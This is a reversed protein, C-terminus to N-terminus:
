LTIVRRSGLLPRCDSPSCWRVCSEDDRWRGGPVDGDACRSGSCLTWTNKDPHEGHKLFYMASFLAYETDTMTKINMSTIDNASKNLLETDPSKSDRVRIVYTGKRPSREDKEAPIAVDLSDDTYKWTPFLKKRAQFLVEKSGALEQDVVITLYEGDNPVEPVALGSFDPAKGFLMMYLEASALLDPMTKVTKPMDKEFADRLVKNLRDQHDIYYQGRGGSLIPLQALVAGAFTMTQKHFGSTLPAKGARPM